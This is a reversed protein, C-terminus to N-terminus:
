LILLQKNFDVWCQYQNHYSGALHYHPRMTHMLASALITTDNQTREIVITYLYEQWCIIPVSYQEGTLTAHLLSSKWFKKHLETDGKMFVPRQMNM